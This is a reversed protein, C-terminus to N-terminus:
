EKKISNVFFKDICKCVWQFLDDTQTLQEFEAIFVSCRCNQRWEWIKIAVKLCMVWGANVQEFLFVLVLHSIHEFNVIFVVFHRWQGRELAKIKYSQVYKVGQELVEIILKLCSISPQIRVPYYHSQVFKYHSQVFKTFKEPANIVSNSSLKVWSHLSSIWNFLYVSLDM